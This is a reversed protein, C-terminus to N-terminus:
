IDLVETEKIIEYIKNELMKNLEKTISIKFKDSDVAKMADDHYLMNPNPGHYRSAFILPRTNNSM